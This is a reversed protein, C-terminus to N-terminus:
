LFKQSPLFIGCCRIVANVHCKSVNTVQKCEELRDEHFSFVFKSFKTLHRNRIFCIHIKEPNLFFLRFYVHKIGDEKSRDASLCMSHTALCLQLVQPQLQLGTTSNKGLM